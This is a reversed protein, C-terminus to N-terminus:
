GRPALAGSAARPAPASRRLCRPPRAPPPLAPPLGRAAGRPPPHLQHRPAVLLHQQPEGRPGALYRSHPSRSPPFPLLVSRDPNSRVKSAMENWGGAMPLSLKRSVLTNLAGDLRTEFAKLSAYPPFPRGEPLAGRCEGDRGDAAATRPAAPARLARQPPPAAEGRGRGGSEAGERTRLAGPLPPTEPSRAAVHTRPAATRPRKERRPASSPHSTPQPWTSPTDGAQRSLFRSFGGRKSKHNIETCLCSRRLAVSIVLPPKCM